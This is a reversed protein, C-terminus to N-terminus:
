RERQRCLSGLSKAKSLLRKHSLSTSISSFSFNHNNRQTRAKDSYVLAKITRVYDWRGDSESIDDDDITTSLTNGSVDNMSLELKSSLSDNFSNQVSLGGRSDKSLISCASQSRTPHQHRRPRSADDSSTMSDDFSGCLNYWSSETDIKPRAKPDMIAGDSATQQQHRSPHRQFQSRRSELKTHLFNKSGIRNTDSQQKETFRPSLQISPIVPETTSSEQLMDCLSSTSSSQFLSIPVEINRYYKKEPRYYIDYQPSPVENEMRLLSKNNSGESKTTRAIKEDVLTPTQSTEETVLQATTAVQREDSVTSQCSGM